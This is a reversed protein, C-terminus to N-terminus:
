EEVSLTYAGSARLLSLKAQDQAFKPGRLTVAVVIKNGQVESHMDEIDVGAKRVLEQVEEVRRPDPELEVTLRSVESHLKLYAEAWGMTRLVAVVILTAGGALYVENAGVATGIAAVLWITAASNLGTISGKGHLITGAGLFGVGTVIGAALQGKPFTTGAMSISLQTFLAAGMCILINTRLGAAKGRLEREVGIIGGLLIAVALGSLETLRLNRVIEAWTPM